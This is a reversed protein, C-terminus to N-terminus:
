HKPPPPPPPLSPKFNVAGLDGLIEFQRRRLMAVPHRESGDVGGNNLKADINADDRSGILIVPSIDFDRLNSVQDSSDRFGNRFLLARFVNENQLKSVERNPPDRFGNGLNTEPQDPLARFVNENQLKSVERNPPDRFGNGLNTEPQDPLARFVNENQLKSAERNPPDRFGNGLNTEPQDPLARFVNENQLKSVERNPPDRFGNGLNTEPQDPLARFVNENQLKSVEQNPPDRFGNGMNSVQKQNLPDRKFGNQDSQFEYRLAELLTNLSEINPLADANAKNADMNGLSIANVNPLDHDNISQKIEDNSFLKTDNKPQKTEANMYQKIENENLPVRIEDSKFQKIEGNLSEKTRDNISQKMEGNMYQKLADDITRESEDNRVRELHDKDNPKNRLPGECRLKDGDNTSALNPDNDTDGSNTEINLIIFHDINKNLPDRQATNAQTFDAVICGLTCLAICITGNTGLIM